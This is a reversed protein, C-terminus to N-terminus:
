ELYRALRTALDLDPGVRQKKGSFAEPIRELCLKLYLIDFHAIIQAVSIM